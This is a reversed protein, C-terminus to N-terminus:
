PQPIFTSHVCLELTCQKKTQNPKNEKLPHNYESPGTENNSVRMVKVEMDSDPSRTTKGYDTGGHTDFSCYSGTPRQMYPATLIALM